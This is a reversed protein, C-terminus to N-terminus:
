EHRIFVIHILIIRMKCNAPNKMEETNETESNHSIYINGNPTPVNFHDSM